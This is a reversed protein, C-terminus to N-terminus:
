LELGLGRNRSLKKEKQFLTTVSIDFSKLMEKQQKIFEWQASNQEKDQTEVFEVSKINPKTALFIHFAKEELGMLVLNAQSRRSLTNKGNTKLFSLFDTYVKLNKENKYSHTFPSDKDGYYTSNYNQNFDMTYEVAEKKNEDSYFWIGGDKDVQVRKLKFLDDALNPDINHHKLFKQVKAKAIKPNEKNITPVYFSKYPRKVEGFHQELLMLNKNDTIKSIAGLFSVDDHLSVLEILSGTTKNKTNTWRTGNIVIHERGKLVTDGSSNTIFPIKQKKCYELIDINSARRIESIPIISDRLTDDSPLPTRDGRRDSKTYSEYNKAQPKQPTGRGLLLSSSVGLSDGEGTKFNSIGDRIKRRLQPQKSFLEDNSKFNDVLGAKDYASGLKKGRIGKEHGEYYYTINKETIAVKISLEHLISAYEDFSTAYSRAFDAKQFLDLRYSKGGRRQIEKVKPPINREKEKGTQRIISLGNERSIDNAITRLNYLHEKKDIVDRKGTRENVPNVLIHNHLKNTDTHTVVIFEHNPFYRNALETGMMNVKEASLSKSEEPSFSHIVEFAINVSPGRRPKNKGHIEQTGVFQDIAKGEICNNCNTVLETGRDKLLYEEYDRASMEKNKPIDKRWKVKIYAM